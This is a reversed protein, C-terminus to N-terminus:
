VNRQSTSELVHLGLTGHFDLSYLRVFTHQSYWDAVDCVQQLHFSRPLAMSSAVGLLKQFQKVTLSQGERM